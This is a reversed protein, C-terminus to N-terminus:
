RNELNGYPKGIMYKYFIFYIAAPIFSLIGIVPIISVIDQNNFVLSIVIASCCLCVAFIIWYKLVYAVHNLFIKFEKDGEKNEEEEMEKIAEKILEKQYKRMKM